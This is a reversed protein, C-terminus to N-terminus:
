TSTSATQLIDPQNEVRQLMKSSQVEERMTMFYMLSIMSFKWTLPSMITYPSSVHQCTSLSLSVQKRQSETLLCLQLMTCAAPIVDRENCEEDKLGKTVLGAEVAPLVDCLPRLSVAEPCTLTLDRKKILSFQTERAEPKLCMKQDIM